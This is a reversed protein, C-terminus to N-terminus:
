RAPVQRAISISRYATPISNAPKRQDVPSGPAAALPSQNNRSVILRGESNRWCSFDELPGSM